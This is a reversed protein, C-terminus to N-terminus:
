GDGRLLEFLRRARDTESARGLEVVLRKLEEYSASKLQVTVTGGELGPPIIVQIRSSLGMDRVTQQIADEIRSLRPFRLRRVEEKIRKLKDSRSLRPDSFIRVLPESSLVDRPSLGDRLSIEDLWDLFDRLHNESPKLGQALGLIAERDAEALNLWRELTQQHFGKEKAYGVIIDNISSTADM